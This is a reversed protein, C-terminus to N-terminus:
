ADGKLAKRITSMELDDVQADRLDVLTLGEHSLLDLAMGPQDLQLILSACAAAFGRVYDRENFPSKVDSPCANKIPFAIRSFVSPFRAKCEVLMGNFAYTGEAIFVSNSGPRSDGSRDWFALATWGSPDHILKAAGEIERGVPCLTSDPSRLFGPLPVNQYQTVLREDYLYHGSRHGPRVGFYFFRPNM